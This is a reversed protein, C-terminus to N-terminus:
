TSCVLGFGPGGPYVRWCLGFFERVTALVYVGFVSRELPPCAEHEGGLCALPTFGRELM